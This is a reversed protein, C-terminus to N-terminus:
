MIRLGFKQIYLMMIKLGFNQISEQGYKLMFKTTHKLGFKQLTVMLLDKTYKTTTKQGYRLGSRQIFKQITLIIIVM